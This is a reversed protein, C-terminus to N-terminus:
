TRSTGFGRACSFAATLKVKKMAAGLGVRTRSRPSLPKEGPKPALLAQLTTPQARADVVRKRLEGLLNHRKALDAYPM